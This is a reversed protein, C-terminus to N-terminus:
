CVPCKLVLPIILKGCPHGELGQMKLCVFGIDWAFPLGLRPGLGAGVPVGEHSSFMARKSPGGRLVHTLLRTTLLRPHNLVKMAQPLQPQYVKWGELPCNPAQNLFSSM